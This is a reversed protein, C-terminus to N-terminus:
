PVSLPCAASGECSCALLMYAACMCVYVRVSAAEVHKRVFMCLTSAAYQIKEKRKLYDARYQINPLAFTKQKHIM